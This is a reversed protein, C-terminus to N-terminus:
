AVENRLADLQHLPLPPLHGTREVDSRWADHPNRGLKARLWGFVEGVAPRLDDGQLLQYVVNPGLVHRLYRPWPWLGDRRYIRAALLDDIENVYRLGIRRASPPLPPLGCADRWAIWPLNVGARTSLIHAQSIRPNIELLKFEGTLAHRKFDMNAIGGCFGIRQLADLGLAELAPEDVSEMCCGGGAYPPFVRWNRTVSTALVRGQRDVVAHVGYHQEDGGPVYEQLLTQAWVPPALRAALQNLQALDDLRLAKAHRLAEPVGDAQWALPRTPKAILPFTLRAARGAWDAAPRDHGLEQVTMSRPVPLGAQRALAGFSSKDTLRGTLAAPPLTSRVLGGLQEDIALLAAMDPDASAFVVPAVGLRERVAQLVQLLQAPERTFAPVHLFARCHRSRASPPRAYEGLVIVPVGREGLSRVLSLDGEPAGLCSLV